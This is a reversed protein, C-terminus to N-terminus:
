QRIAGCPICRVYINRPDKLSALERAADAVPALLTTLSASLASPAWIRLSGVRDALQQLFMDRPSLPLGVYEVEYAKLGARVAAAHIADSLSGLGDLLGHELADPASWVR